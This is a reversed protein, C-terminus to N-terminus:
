PWLCPRGTGSDAAIRGSSRTAKRITTTTSGANLQPLQSAAVQERLRKGRKM